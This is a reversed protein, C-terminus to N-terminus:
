NWFISFISGLAAAKAPMAAAGDVSEDSLHTWGDNECEVDEAWQGTSQHKKNRTTGAAEPM